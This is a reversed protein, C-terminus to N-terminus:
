KTLDTNGTYAIAKGPQWDIKKGRAQKSLWHCATACFIEHTGEFIPLRANRSPRRFHVTREMYSPDQQCDNRLPEPM